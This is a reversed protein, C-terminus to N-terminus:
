KVLFLQTLVVIDAADKTKLCDVLRRSSSTPCGLNKAVIHANQKANKQMAWTNLSDRICM